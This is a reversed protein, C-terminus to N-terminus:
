SEGPDLLPVWAWTARTIQEVAVDLASPPGDVPDEVDLEAPAPAPLLGRRSAALAPLARLREAPNAGDVEAPSVGDLLHAFERWTFTRRLAFPAVVLAEDRVRRTAALVVDASRVLDPTLRRAVFGDVAWGHGPALDAVAPWAGVGPIARVGASAVTVGALRRRQLAQRTIAEAIVSRCRNAVCLHLVGGM